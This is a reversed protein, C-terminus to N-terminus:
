GLGSIRVSDVVWGWCCGGTFVWRLRVDSQGAMEATMDFRFDIYGDPSRWGSRRLLHVVM